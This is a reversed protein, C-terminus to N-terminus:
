IQLFIDYLFDDHLFGDECEKTKACQCGDLAALFIEHVFCDFFQLVTLRLGYVVDVPM